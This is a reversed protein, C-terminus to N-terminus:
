RAIITQFCKATGERWARGEWEEDVVKGQEEMGAVLARYSRSLLTGNGPRWHRNPARSFRIHEELTDPRFKLTYQHVEVECHFSTRAIITKVLNIGAVLPSPGPSNIPPSTGTM